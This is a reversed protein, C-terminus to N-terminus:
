VPALNPNAKTATSKVLSPYFKNIHVHLILQICKYICTHMHIYKILKYSIFTGMFNLM